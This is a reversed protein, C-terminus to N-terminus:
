GHETTWSLRKTAKEQSPVFPSTSAVTRTQRNRKNRSSPSSSPSISKRKKSAPTFSTVTGQKLRGHKTMLAVSGRSYNFKQTFAEDCATWDIKDGTATNRHIWKLLWKTEKATYNPNSKCQDSTCATIARSDQPKASPTHSVPSLACAAPSPVHRNSTIPEIPYQARVPSPEEGHEYFGINVGRQMVEKWKNVLSCATRGVTFRAKYKDCVKDWDVTRYGLTFPYNGTVHLFLWKEQHFSFPAVPPKIETIFLEPNFNPPNSTGSTTGALASTSVSTRRKSKHKRLGRSSPEANINTM